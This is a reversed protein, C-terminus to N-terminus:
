KAINAALATFRKLELSVRGVLLGQAKGETIFSKANKEDVSGGYLIVPVNSFKEDYRDRLIKRIYIVMEQCEIPTATREAKNGIAWVPEYAIIINKLAAKPVTALATEIQEKVTGLYWGQSDRKQEGVCVIPIIKKDLLRLVQEHVRENTDGALRSESHGVICYQVGFQKLIPASVQGTHAVDTNHSVAQAGLRVGKAAKSVLSLYPFPPCIIVALQKKFYKTIKATGVAVKQAESIREPAMKWNGVLFIM